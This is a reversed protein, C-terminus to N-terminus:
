IDKDHNEERQQKLMDIEAKLYQITSIMPAIFEEYRLGYGYVPNGEEDYVLEDEECEETTFAGDEREVEKTKKVLKSRQFKIFGAFDKSDIKLEGLLEEIDQAIMGCHKRDSTNDNFKYSCPKLGLIFDKWIDPDLIEITNKETRDSTAISSNTSWIQGWKNNDHGLCVITHHPCLTWRAPNQKVGYFLTYATEAPQFILSQNATSQITFHNHFFVAESAGSIRVYHSGNWSTINSQCDIWSTANVPRELNLNGNNLYRWVGRNNSYDWIGIVTGSSTAGGYLCANWKSTSCNYFHVRKEDTTSLLVHGNNMQINSGFYAPRDVCFDGNVNYIWVTRSNSRDWLGFVTTDGQSGSYLVSSWKKSGGSSFVIRQEEELPLTIDGYVKIPLMCDLLNDTEATKGIAIGKGNRKFHMLFFASSVYSQYTVTTFADSLEYLVDYSAEASIGSSGFVKAANDSLSGAATWASANTRRFKVACSMSNKSSCSAVSLRAFARFYTGSDSKNGSADSRYTSVSSISPNSYPVVSISVTKTASRRGRSDTVYASFTITGSGLYGTTLSSGGSFGGGSISYGTITSGYSGAAGNITLRAQSKGQVYIGWASPVNNNLREIGLSSFSPVMDNSVTVTFTCNSRGIERGGSYTICTITGWSSTSNPIQSGWSKPPTYSASTGVNTAVTGNLSCFSYLLTHTFASSARNITITGASGLTFNTSSVSSARPITSCTHTGSVTLPSISDSNANTYTASFSFSKSGDGNHGIVATGSALTYASAEGNPARVTGCETTDCVVAGDMTVVVHNGTARSYSSSYSDNRYVKFYWTITTNNAAINNNEYIELKGTYKDNAPHGYYNANAM